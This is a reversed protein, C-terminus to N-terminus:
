SFVGYEIRGLTNMVLDVGAPEDLILAPTQGGLAVCPSNLWRMAKGTDKFVSYARNVVDKYDTELDATYKM